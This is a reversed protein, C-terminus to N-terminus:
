PIAIAEAFGRCIDEVEVELAARIEAETRGTLRGALKWPMAEMRRRTMVAAQVQRREVEGRDLMEGQREALLMERREADAVRKRLEARALKERLDAEVEGRIRAEIEAREDDVLAPTAANPRAPPTPAAVARTPDSIAGPPRGAAGSLGQSRAWARVKAVDVLVSGGKGPSTPMGRKRWATLTSRDVDLAAAARTLPLLKSM